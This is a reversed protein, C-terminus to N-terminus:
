LTKVRDRPVKVPPLIRPKRELVTKLRGKVDRLQRMKEELMQGLQFRTLGRQSLPEAAQMALEILVRSCASRDSLSSDRPDQAWEPVIMNSGFDILAAYEM